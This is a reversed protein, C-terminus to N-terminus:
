GARERSAPTAPVPRGNEADGAVDVEPRGAPENPLPAPDPPPPWEYTEEDFQVSRHWHDLNDMWEEDEITRLILSLRPPAQPDGVPPLIHLFADGDRTREAAQLLDTATRIGYANLLRLSNQRSM